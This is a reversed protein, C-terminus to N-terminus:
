ARPSRTTSSAYPDSGRPRPLARRLVAAPRCPREEDAAWTSFYWDLRRRHRDSRAAVGVVMARVAELTAPDNDAQETLFDRLAELAHEQAPKRALARAWLEEMQRRHRGNDAVVLPAGASGGPVHSWPVPSLAVFVFVSLAQAVLASDDQPRSWELLAGLVETERGQEVLRLVSTSVAVLGSWQEDDLVDGLLVLAREPQWNGLPGGVAGAATRRLRNQFPTGGEAAWSELLRWVPETLERESAALGLAAAATERQTRSEDGAWSRLFRHLAYDLDGRALLGVTVAARGRVEIDRHDVLRRLWRLLVPRCGDLHHWAYTLVAPQLLDDTFRVRAPEWRAAAGNGAREDSLEIWPHDTGLRERFRLDPPDAATPDLLRYLEVAADSVTLYGAGELAATALTFCTTEPARHRGFWAHVQTTPDSLSQVASAPDDHEGLAAALRVAMRPGPQRAMLDLAGAEALSRRLDDLAGPGPDPGFLRRAIVAAPDVEGLSTVVHRSHAAAEMLAGRPAGTLVVMFGEAARVRRATMDIWGEDLGSSVVLDRGKAPGDLDVIYGARTVAPTWDGMVVAAPDTLHYCAGADAAADAAHGAAALADTLLNVAAADRGTGVPVALVLLHHEGLLGLADTYGPPRVYFDRHASLTAGDLPVTDRAVTGGGARAGGVGLDGGVKVEDGFMTLTGIHVDGSRRERLMRGWAGELIAAFRETEARTLSDESGRLGRLAEAAPDPRAADKDAGEGDRGEREKGEREKGARDQAEPGGPGAGPAAPGHERDPAHRGDAHRHGAGDAGGAARAAPDDTM